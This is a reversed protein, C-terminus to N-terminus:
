GSQLMSDRISRSVAAVLFHYYINWSSILPDGPLPGKLKIKNLLTNAFVVYYGFLLICSTSMYLYMYYM